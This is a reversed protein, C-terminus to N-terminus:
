TLAHFAWRVGAIIVTWLILSAGLALALGIWRPLVPVSALVEDTDAPADAILGHGRRSAARRVATVGAVGDRM